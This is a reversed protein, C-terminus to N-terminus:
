RFADIERSILSSIASEIEKDSKTSLIDDVSEDFAAVMHCRIEQESMVKSFMTTYERALKDDIEISRGKVNVTMHLGGKRIGKYYDTGTTQRM